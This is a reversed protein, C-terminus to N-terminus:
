GSRTQKSSIIEGVAKLQNRQVKERGEQWEIVRTNKAANVVHNGDAEALKKKRGELKPFHRLFFNFIIISFNWKVKSLKENLGKAVASKTDRAFNKTM